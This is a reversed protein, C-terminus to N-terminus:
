HGRGCCTKLRNVSPLWMYNIGPSVYIHRSSTCFANFLEYDSENIIEIEDGEDDIWYIRLEVIPLQREKLLYGEIEKRMEQFLPTSLKLFIHLTRNANMKYSVKMFERPWGM